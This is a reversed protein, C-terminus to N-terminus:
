KKEKNQVQEQYYEANGKGGKRVIFKVTKGDFVGVAFPEREQYGYIYCNNLDSFVMPISTFTAEPNDSSDVLESNLYFEMKDMGYLEDSMDIKLESVYDSKQKIEYQCTVVEGSGGALEEFTPNNSVDSSSIGFFSIVAALVIATISGGAAVKKKQSNITSSM